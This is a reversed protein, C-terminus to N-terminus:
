KKAIGALNPYFCLPFTSMLLVLYKGLFGLHKNAREYYYESRIPFKFIRVENFGAELIIKKLSGATQLSCHYEGWTKILGRKIPGYLSDILKNPTQFIFSGDPKLVRYIEKLALIPQPIHEIVNFSTVANLSKDDLPIRHGNYPLLKHKLDPYKKKGFEISDASIDIGIVNNWGLQSLLNPFSGINTGFDLIKADKAYNFQRFLDVSGQINGFETRHGKNKNFFDTYLSKHNQRDM